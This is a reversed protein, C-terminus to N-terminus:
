ISNQKLGLQPGAFNADTRKRKLYTAEMPLDVQLPIGRERRFSSTCICNLGLTDAFDETFLSQLNVDALLIWCVCLFDAETVGFIVNLFYISSIGDSVAKNM